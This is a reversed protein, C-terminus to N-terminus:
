SLQARKPPDIKLCILPNLSLKNPCQSNELPRCSLIVVIGFGCIKPYCIRSGKGYMLIKSIRSKMYKKGNELKFVFTLIKRVLM